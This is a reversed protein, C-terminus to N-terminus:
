VRLQRLNRTEGAIVSVYWTMALHNNLTTSIFSAIWFAGYNRTQCQIPVGVEKKCPLAQSCDRSRSRADTAECARLSPSPLNRTAGAVQRLLILWHTAKRGQPVIRLKILLQTAKPVSAFLCMSFYYYPLNPVSAIVSCSSSSVFLLPDHGMTLLTVPNSRLSAVQRLLILWHTAKRGQPFLCM